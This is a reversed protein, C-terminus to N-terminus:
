IRICTYIPSHTSYVVTNVCTYMCCMFVIHVHLQMHVRRGIYLALVYTFIYDVYICLSLPKYEYYRYEIYVILTYM